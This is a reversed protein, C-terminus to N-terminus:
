SEQSGQNIREMRELIDNFNWIVFRYVDKKNLNFAIIINDIILRKLKDSFEVLEKLNENEKKLKENEEMRRFYIARVEDVEMEWEQHIKKNEEKLKKCEEYLQKKNMKSLPTTASM